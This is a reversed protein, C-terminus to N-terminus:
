LVFFLVGLILFVPKVPDANNSIDPFCRKGTRSRLDYRKRQTRYDADQEGVSSVM